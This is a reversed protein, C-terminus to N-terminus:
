DIAGQKAPTEKKAMALSSKPSKLNAVAPTPSEPKPVKINSLVPATEKVAETKPAVSSKGNTKM